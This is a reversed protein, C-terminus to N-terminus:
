LVEEFNFSADHELGLDAMVAASIADIDNVCEVVTDPAFGILSGRANRVQVNTIAFKTM